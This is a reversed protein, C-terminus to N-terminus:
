INDECKVIYTKNDKDQNNGDLDFIDSDFGYDNGVLYISKYEISISDIFYFDKSYQTIKWVKDGKSFMTYKRLKEWEYLNKIQKYLNMVEFACDTRTCILSKDSKPENRPVIDINKNWASSIMNLLNNKSVTESHLHYLGTLDNDLVHEIFRALELTTVGNWFVNTYGFTRQQSLFWELLGTKHLSIEMGILSTRITLDKDNNIEGAIKTKGYVNTADPTDLEDYNGKSGSFVCDTSLHIIKIKTNRTKRELWKPFTANLFRARDPNLECESPLCGVCNIVVSPNMNEFIDLLDDKRKEVDIIYTSNSRAVTLITHPTNRKLYESITHGAMGNSGLILIVM